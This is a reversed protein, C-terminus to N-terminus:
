NRFTYVRCIAQAKAVGHENSEFTKKAQKYGASAKFKAPIEYIVGEAAVSVDESFSDTLSKEDTYTKTHTM